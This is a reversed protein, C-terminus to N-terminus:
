LSINKSNKLSVVNTNNQNRKKYIEALKDFYNVYLTPNNILGGTHAEKMSKESVAACKLINQLSKIKKHTATDRPSRKSVGGNELNKFLRKTKSKENESPKESGPFLDQYTQYQKQKELLNENLKLTIYSPTQQKTETFLNDNKSLNNLGEAADSIVSLSDLGAMADSINSLSNVNEKAKLINLLIELGEAAEKETIKMYKKTYAENKKSLETFQEELKRNHEIISELDFNDKKQKEM